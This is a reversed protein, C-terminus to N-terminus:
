KTPDHLCVVRSRRGLLETYTPTVRCLLHSVMLAILAPSCPRIGIYVTPYYNWCQLQM